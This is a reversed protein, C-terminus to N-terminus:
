YLWSIFEAANGQTTPQTTIGPQLISNTDQPTPPPFGCFLCFIGLGFGFGGIEAM